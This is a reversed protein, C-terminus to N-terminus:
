KVREITLTALGLDCSDAETSCTNTGIDDTPNYGPELDLARITFDGKPMGRVLMRCSSSDRCLPASPFGISCIERGQAMQLCLAIDPLHWRTFRVALDWPKGTRGTEDIPQGGKDRVTLTLLIDASPVGAVNVTITQNITNGNGDVEVSQAVPAGSAFYLVLGAALAVGTM